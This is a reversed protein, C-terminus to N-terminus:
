RVAPERPVWVRFTSGRGVESEVTVAGGLLELLRRVIYLGLGAGGYPRTLSNDVQRFSEFIDGVAEAPIGIGTDSVAFEVGGNRAAALLRVAGQESFKFANDILNKLVVKLKVRDSRVPPLEGSAECAWTIGPKRRVGETEAEIEELLDALHIESWEV